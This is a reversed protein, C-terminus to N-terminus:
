YEIGKQAKVGKKYYHKVERFDTVLDAMQVIERPCNRGTLVIDIKDRYKELFNIVEKQKILDFSLAVNIEDLILLHYKKSQAAKKALSFGKKVLEFDIRSFPKVKKTIESNKKLLDKPLIFTKRGFCSIDFNKIKEIIKQESSCDKTKLFQIMLVKKKTGVARLGMGVAATTKGKGDGTLVYIM